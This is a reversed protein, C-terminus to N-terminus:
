STSIVKEGVLPSTLAASRLFIKTLKIWVGLVARAPVRTMFRIVPLAAAGSRDRRSM